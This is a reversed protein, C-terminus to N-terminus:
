RMYLKVSDKGIHFSMVQSKAVISFRFRGNLYKYLRYALLQWNTAVVGRFKGNLSLSFNCNFWRRFLDFDSLLEKCM